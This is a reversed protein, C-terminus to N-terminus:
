GTRQKYDTVNQARSCNFKWSRSSRNKMKIILCTYKLANDISFVEKTTTRRDSHQHRYYSSALGADSVCTVPNMHTSISSNQTRQSTLYSPIVSHCVPTFLPTLSLPIGGLAKRKTKRVEVAEDSFIVNRKMSLLGTQNVKLSFVISLTTSFCDGRLEEIFSVGSSTRRM